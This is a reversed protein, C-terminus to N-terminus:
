FNLLKLVEINSYSKIKLCSMRMVQRFYHQVCDCMSQIFSYDLKNKEIEGCKTMWTNHDTNIKFLFMMWMFSSGWLLTLINPLIIATNQLFRVHSSWKNLMIKKQSFNFNNQSLWCNTMVKFLKQCWWIM